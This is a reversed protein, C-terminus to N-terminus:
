RQFEIHCDGKLALIHFQFTNLMHLYKCVDNTVWTADVKYFFVMRLDRFLTPQCSNGITYGEMLFMQLSHCHYGHNGLLRLLPRKKKKVSFVHSYNGVFSINRIAKVSSKTPFTFSM